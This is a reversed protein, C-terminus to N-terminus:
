LSFVLRRLKHPSSCCSSICADALLSELFYLRCRGDRGSSFLESSFVVGRPGAATGVPVLCRPHTLDRGEALGRLVGAFGVRAEQRCHHHGLIFVPPSPFRASSSRKRARYCVPRSSSAPEFYVQGGTLSSFQPVLRNSIQASLLFLFPPRLGCVVQPPRFTRQCFSAPRTLFPSSPFEV